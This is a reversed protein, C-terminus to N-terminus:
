GAQILRPAQGLMAITVLDPCTLDSKGMMTWGAFWITCSSAKRLRPLDPLWLPTAIVSRVPHTGRLRNLNWSRLATQPCVSKKKPAYVVAFREQVVGGARDMMLGRISVGV